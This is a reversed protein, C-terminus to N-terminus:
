IIEYIKKPFNGKSTVEGVFKIKNDNALRRCHKAVAQHSIKMKLKKRIDYASLPEKSESFIKLIKERTEIGIITESLKM